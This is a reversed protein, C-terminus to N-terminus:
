ALYDTSGRDPREFMYPEQRKETGLPSTIFGRLPNMVEGTNSQKTLKTGEHSFHISLVESLWVAGSDGRWFGQCRHEPELLQREGYM